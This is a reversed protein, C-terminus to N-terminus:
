YSLFEDLKLRASSILITKHSINRHRLVNRRASSGGRVGSSGLSFSIKTSFNIM